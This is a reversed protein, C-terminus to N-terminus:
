SRAETWYNSVQVCVHSFVKDNIGQDGLSLLEEQGCLKAAHHQLDVVDDNGSTVLVVELHKNKNCSIDYIANAFSSKLFSIDSKVQFIFTM